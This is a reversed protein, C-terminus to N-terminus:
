AASQERFKAIAERRGRVGLKGSARAILVRVTASSLGLEYAIEKNTQGMAAYALVQRERPSLARPRALQVANRTAVVYRRGGRDFDDLLTWRGDVLGNRAAIVAEADVRGKTTRARELDITARRLLSRADHDRAEGVAHELTGDPSLIADAVARLERDALRRRIRYGAALHTAVRAYLAEEAPGLARKRKQPIGLWIGYGDPDRGNIAFVDRAGGFASCAAVVHEMGPVTSATAARRHIWTRWGSPAADVPSPGEGIRAQFDSLWAAEFGPGFVNRTVRPEAKGPSYVYSASGLGKGLLEGGIRAIARLWEEESADLRYAADILALLDLRM